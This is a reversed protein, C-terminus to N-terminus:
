LVPRSYYKKNKEWDPLLTKELFGRDIENKQGSNDSIERWRNAVLESLKSYSIPRETPSLDAVVERVIKIYPAHREEAETKMAQGRKLGGPMSSKSRNQGAIAHAEFDTKLQGERVWQGLRYACNLLGGFREADIPERDFKAIAVRLAILQDFILGDILGEFEPWDSDVCWRAEIDFRMPLPEGIVDALHTALGDLTRLDPNRPREFFLPWSSFWPGDAGKLRTEVIVSLTEERDFLEGRQNPYVDAVRWELDAGITFGTSQVYGALDPHDAETLCVAVMGPVLSEGDNGM